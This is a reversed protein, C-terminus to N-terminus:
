QFEIRRPLTGGGYISIYVLDVNVQSFTEHIAWIASPVHAKSSSALRGWQGVLAPLSLVPALELEGCARLLGKQNWSFITEHYLGCNVQYDPDASARRLCAAM